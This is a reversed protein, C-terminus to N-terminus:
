TIGDSGPLKMRAKGVGVRRYCLQPPVRIERDHLDFRQDLYGVRIVLHSPDDSIGAQVVEVSRQQLVLSAQRQLNSVIQFGKHLLPRWLVVTWGKSFLTLM